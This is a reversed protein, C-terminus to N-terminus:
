GASSRRRTVIIRQRGQTQGGKMKLVSNSQTSFQTSFQTSTGPLKFQRMRNAASNDVHRAYRTTTSLNAHGLLDRILLPDIGQQLAWSAFSHRLAHIHFRTQGTRKRLIKVIYGLSSRRGGHVRSPFVYGTNPYSSGNRLPNIGPNDAEWQQRLADFVPDLLPIRRSHGTKTRDPDFNGFEIAKNKFDVEPWRLELFESLRLGTGVLVLITRAHEANKCAALLAEFQEPRLQRDVPKTEKIRSRDFTKLPNVTLRDDLGRDLAFDYVQSIFTLQRRITSDSIPQDWEEPPKSPRPRFSNRREKVFAKLSDHTLAAMYFNGLCSNVVVGTFSAATARPKARTLSDLFKEAADLFQIGVQLRSAAVCANIEAQKERAICRAKCEDTTGTSIRRWGGRSATPDKLDAYWRTSGPRQYVNIEDDTRQDM